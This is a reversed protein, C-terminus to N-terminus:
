DMDEVLGNECSIFEILFLYYCVGLNHLEDMLM